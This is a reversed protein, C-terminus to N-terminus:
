FGRSEGTVVATSGNPSPANFWARSLGDYVSLSVSNQAQQGSVGVFFLFSVLLLMFVTRKQNNGTKHYPASNGKLYFLNISM